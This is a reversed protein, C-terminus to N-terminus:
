RALAVAERSQSVLSTSGRRSATVGIAVGNEGDHAMRLMTQVVDAEETHIVLRKKVGSRSPINTAFTTYGFPLRSGNFFGAEANVRQRQLSHKSDERSRFADTTGIVDRVLESTDEEEPMPQTM